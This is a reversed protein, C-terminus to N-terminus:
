EDDEIESDTDVDMDDQLEQQEQARIYLPTPRVGWHFKETGWLNLTQRIEEPEPQENLKCGRRKCGGPYKGSGCDWFSTFPNLRKDVLAKLFSIKADGGCDRAAMYWPDFKPVGPQTQLLWCQWEISQVGPAFKGLESQRITGIFQCPRNYRHLDPALQNELIDTDLKCRNDLKEANRSWKKPLTTLEQWHPSSYRSVPRYSNATISDKGDLIAWDPYLEAAAVFIEDRGQFETADHNVDFVKWSGRSAMRSIFFLQLKADVKHEERWVVNDEIPGARVQVLYRLSIKTETSFRGMALPFPFLEDSDLASLYEEFRQADSLTPESPKEPEGSPEEDEGSPEEMPPEEDERPQEEDERPPEEDEGAPEEDESPYAGADQLTPM